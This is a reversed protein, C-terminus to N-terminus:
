EASMMSSILAASVSRARGKRGISDGVYGCTCHREAEQKILMEEM